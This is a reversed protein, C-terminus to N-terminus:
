KVSERWRIKLPTDRRRHARRFALAQTATGAVVGGTSVVAGCYVRIRVFPAQIAHAVVLAEVAGNALINVGLPCRIERQLAAGIVSM